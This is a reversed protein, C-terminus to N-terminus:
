QNKQGKWIMENIQQRVLQTIYEKVTPNNSLFEDMSLPKNSDTWKKYQRAREQAKQSMLAKSSERHRHGWFPNGTGARSPRTNQSNNQTVNNTNNM